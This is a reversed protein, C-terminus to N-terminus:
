TFIRIGYSNATDFHPLTQKEFKCFHTGYIVIGFIHPLMETRTGMFLSLVRRMAFIEKAVICFIVTGNSFRTSINTCSRKPIEQTQLDPDHKQTELCKNINGSLQLRTGQPISNHLGPSANM